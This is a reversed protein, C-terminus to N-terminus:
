EPRRSLAPWAGLRLFRSPIPVQSPLTVSGRSIKTAITAKIVEVHASMVILAWQEIPMTEPLDEAPLMESYIQLQRYEGNETPILVSADVHACGETGYGTIGIQLSARM